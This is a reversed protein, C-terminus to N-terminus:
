KSYGFCELFLTCGVRSHLSVIKECFGGHM